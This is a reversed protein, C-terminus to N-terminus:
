AQALDVAQAFARDIDNHEMVVFSPRGRVRTALEEEARLRNTERMRDPVDIVLSGLVIGSLRLSSGRKRPHHYQLPGAYLIGNEARFEPLRAGGSELRDVLDMLLRHQARTRLDCLEMLASPGLPDTAREIVMLAPEYSKRSKGGRTRKIARGSPNEQTVMRLSPHQLYSRAQDGMRRATRLAEDDYTAMSVTQADKSAEWVVNLAAVLVRNETIDYARSPAACVFLDEDGNTASRASITESWLVPGRLEGRCRVVSTHMSTALSRITVPMTGILGTAEPSTALTVGVHQRIVKASLGLIADVTELTNFPRALRSWISTLSAAPDPPAETVAM